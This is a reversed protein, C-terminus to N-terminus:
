CRPGPAPSRVSRYPGSSYEHQRGPGQQSVPQHPLVGFSAHHLLFPVRGLLQCGILLHGDWCMQARTRGDVVLELLLGLLPEARHQMSERGAQVVKGPLVRQVPETCVADSPDGHRRIQDRLHHSVRRDDVHWRHRAQPRRQRRDDAVEHQAARADHGGTGLGRDGQHGTRRDGWQGRLIRVAGNGQTGREREDDSPPCQQSPQQPGSDDGLQKDM